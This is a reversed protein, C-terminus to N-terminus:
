ITDTPIADLPSNPVDWVNCKRTELNLRSNKEGRTVLLSVGSLSLNLELNYGKSISLTRQGMQEEGASLVRSVFDGDGLIREDFKEFMKAKRMSKVMAWGGMSRILGGGTLDEWRGMSIGKEVFQHYRRRAM